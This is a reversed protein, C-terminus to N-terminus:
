SNVAGTRPDSSTSRGVAIEKELNAQKGTECM